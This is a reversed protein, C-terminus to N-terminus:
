RGYCIGMNCLQQSVSDFDKQKKHVQEQLINVKQSQYSQVGDDQGQWEFIEGDTNEASCRPQKKSWRPPSEGLNDELKAFYHGLGRPALSQHLLM